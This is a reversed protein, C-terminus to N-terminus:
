AEAAGSVSVCVADAADLLAVGAPVALTACTFKEGLGLSSVDVEIANPIDLAKGKLTVKDRAITLDGGMDVGKAKGRYHIPVEFVLSDDLSIELFDAHVLANLVPDTQIEKTVVHKVSKSKGDIIELSIVANKRHISLLAKTFSRTDLELALPELKPGYVVAPTQGARRLTRAAGKGFKTRMRAAVEVQLM